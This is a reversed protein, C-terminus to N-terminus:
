AGRIQEENEMKKRYGKVVGDDRRMSRPGSISSISVPPLLYASQLFIVQQRVQPIHIKTTGASSSLRFSLLLRVMPLGRTTTTGSISSLRRIRPLLTAALSVFGKTSSLGQGQQASRLL